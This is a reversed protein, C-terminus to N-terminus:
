NLLDVIQAIVSSLAILTTIAYPFFFAWFEHQKHEIYEEGAHSVIVKATSAYKYEGNYVNNTMQETPADGDFYSSYRVLYEYMDEKPFKSELMQYTCNKHKYIYKMIKYEENLM